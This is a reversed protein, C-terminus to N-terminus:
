SSTAAPGPGTCPRSPSRRSPARCTSTTPPSRSAWTSASGSTRGRAGRHRPPGHQDRPDRGRLAGTGDEFDLLAVGYNQWYSPDLTVAAEAGAATVLRVNSVYFRFDKPVWPITGLGVAYGATHGCDFAQAGVMAKFDITVAPQCAQSLVPTGTCGDPTASAVTRAQTGAAQCVGWETYAYTCAAPPDDSSSGCAAALTALAAMALLRLRSTM